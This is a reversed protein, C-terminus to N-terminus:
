SIQPIEDHKTVDKRSSPNKKEGGDQHNLAECSQASVRAERATCSAPRNIAPPFSIRRARRRLAVVSRRIRKPLTLACGLSVDDDMDADDEINLRLLIFPIACGLPVDDCM